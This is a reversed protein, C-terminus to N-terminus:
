SSPEYVRESLDVRPAQVMWSELYLYSGETGGVAVPGDQGMDKQSGDTQIRGSDDNTSIQGPEEVEQTPDFSTSESDM